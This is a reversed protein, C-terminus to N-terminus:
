SNWVPRFPTASETRVMGPATKSSVALDFGKFFYQWDKSVSGPAQKWQQYQSEIFDMHYTEPFSM